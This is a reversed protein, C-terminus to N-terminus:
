GCGRAQAEDRATALSARLRSIEARIAGKEGPAATGLDDQLTTIEAPISAVLGRLEHCRADIVQVRAGATGVVIPVDGALLTWAIRYTGPVAPATVTTEFSAVGRPPVAAGLPVQVPPWGVDSLGTDLVLRVGDAPEWTSGLNRFSLRVPTPQGAAMETPIDRGLAQGGLRRPGWVRVEVDFGGQGAGLRADDNNVRLYLPLPRHYLFRQRSRHTGVFFWGGLRGLLAYKRAGAPNIGSHLAFRADDVVYWGDADSPRAFLEPATITGGASIEFEEGPRVTVGTAIDGDVDRVQVSAQDVLVHDATPSLRPATPAPRSLALAGDFLAVDSAGGVAAAVHPLRRVAEAPVTVGAWDAPAGPPTPFGPTRVPDGADARRKAYLWGLSLGALYDLAPDV